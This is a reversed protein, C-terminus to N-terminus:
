TLDVCIVTKCTIPLYFALLYVHVRVCLFVYVSGSVWIYIYVYIPRYIYAHM